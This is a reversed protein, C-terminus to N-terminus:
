SLFLGATQVGLSGAPGSTPTVTATRTVQLLGAPRESAARRRQGTLHPRTKLGEGVGNGAATM